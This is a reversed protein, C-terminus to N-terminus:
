WTGGPGPRDAEAISELSFRGPCLTSQGGLGGRFYPLAPLAAAPWYNGTTPCATLEFWSLAGGAGMLAANIQGGLLGRSWRQPGLRKPM